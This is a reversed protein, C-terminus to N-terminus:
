LEWLDSQSTSIAIAGGELARQIDAETRILGGAIVPIEIQDAIERIVSPIVGPLVEIYDPQAQRIIKLNHDLAQSDLIFLRQIALVKNKKAMGIVNARTSVIGDPKISRVLFEIGQENTQLGQVLDAHVLVKKGAKKIERVLPKLQGLHVELIIIYPYDSALLRDFGKMSRIAPLVGQLKDM